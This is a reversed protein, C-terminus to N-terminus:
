RAEGAAHSPAPEATPAVGRALMADLHHSRFRAAFGERMRVPAREAHLARPRASRSLDAARAEAVLPSLNFM